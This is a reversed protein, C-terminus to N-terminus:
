EEASQDFHASLRQLVSVYNRVTHPSYNRFELEQIFQSRLRQKKKM